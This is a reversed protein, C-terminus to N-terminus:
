KSFNARRAKKMKNIMKESIEKKEEVELGFLSSGFEKIGYNTIVERCTNVSLPKLIEESKTENSLERSLQVLTEETVIRGSEHIKLLNKYCWHNLFNFM